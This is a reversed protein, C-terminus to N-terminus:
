HVLMSIMSLKECPVLRELVSELSDFDVPKQVLASCGAALALRGTTGPERASIAIIPTRRLDPERRIRRITSYGNMLPLRLEILILDPQYCFALDCTDLENSAEVVVFGQLELVSKILFRTEEDSEAIIAVPANESDTM